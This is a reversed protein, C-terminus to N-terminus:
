VVEHGSVASGAPEHVGEICAMVLLRLIDGIHYSRQKEKDGLKHQVDATRDAPVRVVYGNHVVLREVEELLHDTGIGQVAAM